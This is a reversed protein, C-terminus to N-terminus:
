WVVQWQGNKKEYTDTHWYQRIPIRQGQVLIELNAKYRVAGFTGGTRVAIEEVPEWVLYKIQGSEIGGLYQEKSLTVGFPNVLQFEDAHLQKALSLDGAILARLRQREVKELEEVESMAEDGGPRTEGHM